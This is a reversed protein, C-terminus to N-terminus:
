NSLSFSFIISDCCDIEGPNPMDPRKLWKRPLPDHRLTSDCFMIKDSSTM